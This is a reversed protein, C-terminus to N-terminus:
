LAFEMLSPVTKNVALDRTGLWIVSEYSFSLLLKKFITPVIIFIIIVIIITNVITFYYYYYHYHFCYIITFYCAYTDISGYSM